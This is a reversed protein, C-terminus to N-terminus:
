GLTYKHWYTFIMKMKVKVRGPWRVTRWLDQFPSPQAQTVNVDKLEVLSECYTDCCM